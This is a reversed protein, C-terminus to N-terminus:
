AEDLRSSAAPAASEDAFEYDWDLAWVRVTNDAGGTVALTGDASVAVSEVRGTHGTLTHLCAGSALDWVRVTTDRGGSVAVRADASVAVSNVWDTHGFLTRLCAGSALDWVRVTQDASGSVAVRGDASVAVSNVWDTHGFLTRLCVGGALDWVRVMKDVGGSFAVRGDASVAVSSVPGAHGFLTQLCVRGVLDWVRVMEDRAGSVAIRADASVAVSEVEETHGFLTRLCTGSGLDWVRPTKDWSSSVAVRADASVALSFVPGAQGAMTRLCVGGALDWVRVTKDWSGSVAFRADASVAVSRVEEAHGTLTHQPWADRFRSRAGLAALQRWLGVLRPDRRYGPIARAIRLQAAAAVGDRAVLLTEARHVALEVVAAGTLLDDASRPRAYSWGARYGRATPVEWVRVSADSGGSVAVRADAALAVSRVWDGLGTKTRLCDGSVLDWVRVTKDPSGSVAIRADASVTVSQVWQSHGTLTQLCDGSGVDWVRVTKDVGGSVAVRADASMAVSGVAGTHGTLTRLCAGGALDWVRVTRDTSASVAVRADASVAVSGVGGTHGTLTRLCAGSALDWVRVTKDDSASVAVRADASVAVSRVWDSHGTLTRLCVGGALDWVRVTKDRSGSVAVRADASVAVSEVEKTHGFLTHRCAGGALDWVRVIQDAGGSVAIRGDASVAVSAVWSVHAALARAALDAQRHAANLAEGISRDEPAARTAATLLDRATATDYRELHVLALLRDAEPSPHSVRVAEMADILDADTIQGRRWRHLGYNYVADVHHPDSALAQQWVREAQEIRGLDLMSLAQNNLGDALLAAANPKTRPYSVGVLRQYLQALEDALEGMRRERTAPDPNLCRWLLEAVADPMAPIRPDEVWSDERFAAFAEAAVQGHEVPPEGTFMEWVSIAWSWVDTARTLPASRGGSGTIRAATAQEPSCYAPTMGGYGALVSVGPGTPTTEGAAARAKALGFDTVKVAWDAGLMANLPKVDQHVLGRSHAHDLGWAFQIAVDLIRALVEESTGEYLRGSEIAEHLNGGDVWEAFVRPLGGLRRVYVCAVVHPHLGLGVWTEAETEFDAMRQPSSVLEPRPTKVALEMKWGRHHVRHVVGMGGSTIVERVEYLEDVVEGVRWGGSSAAPPSIGDANM